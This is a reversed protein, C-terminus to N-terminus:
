CSRELADAPALTSVRRIREKIRDEFTRHLKRTRLMLRTILAVPVGLFPGGVWAAIGGAAGAIAAMRLRDGTARLVDLPHERRRALSIAGHIAIFILALEPVLDLGGLGDTMAAAAEVHESLDSTSIGSDVLHGALDPADGLSDYVESPVVVKADPYRELADRIYSASASAKLQVFHVVDGSDDRVLVDWGPQTPSAALEAAHGPPLQGDNLLDVYRQEFLKGRIGSMLGRLADPDGQFDKLKDALSGVHPYQAHFATVVDPDLDAESIRGEMVDRLVAGGVVASDLYDTASLRTLDALSRMRGSHERETDIVFDELDKRM